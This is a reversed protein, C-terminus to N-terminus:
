CFYRDFLDIAEEPINQWMFGLAMVLFCAQLAVRFLSIYVSVQAPAHKVKPVAVTTAPDTAPAQAKQWVSIVCEDDMWGSRCVASFILPRELHETATLAQVRGTGSRLEDVMNGSRRDFLYVTGHDSGSLIFKCDEVDRFRSKSEATM